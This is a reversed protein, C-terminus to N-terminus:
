TLSYFNIFFIYFRYKIILRRVAPMKGVSFNYSERFKEDLHKKLLLIHPGIMGATLLNIPTLEKSYNKTYLFYLFDNNMIICEIFSTPIRYPFRRLSFWFNM